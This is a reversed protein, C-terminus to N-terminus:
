AAKRRALGAAALAAVLLAAPAPEPVNNGGTAGARQLNLSAGGLNDQLAYDAMTFAITADHALHLAVPAMAMFADRAEEETDYACFHNHCGPAAPTGIDLLVSFLTNDIQESVVYHVAWSGGVTAQFNWADYLAGAMGWADSLLYDGAQMQLLVPNQLTTVTGPAAPYGFINTGAGDGYGQINIIDAQAAGAALVFVPTLATALAHRLTM